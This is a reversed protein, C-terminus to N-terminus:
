SFRCREGACTDVLLKAQDKCRLRDNRCLRGIICSAPNDNSENSVSRPPSAASDALVATDEQVVVSLDDPLPIMEHM